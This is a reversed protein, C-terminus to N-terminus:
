RAQSVLQEIAPFKGGPVLQLYSSGNTSDQRYVPQDNRRSDVGGPHRVSVVFRENAPRNMLFYGNPEIPLDVTEGARIQVSMGAQPYLQDARQGYWVDGVVQDVEAVADFTPTIRIKFRQGEQLPSGMPRLEQPAGSANFLVQHMHVGQYNLTPSWSRAAQAAGSGLLPLEPLGLIVPSPQYPTAAVTSALTLPVNQGTNFTPAVPAVVLTTVWQQFAPFAQVPEAVITKATQAWTSTVLSTLAVLAISRGFLSTISVSKM